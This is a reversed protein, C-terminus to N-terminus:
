EGLPRPRITTVRWGTPGHRSIVGHFKGSAIAVLFIAGARAAPQVITTLGDSSVGSVVSSNASCSIREPMGAPTTFTSVVVSGPATTVGSSASPRIRLSEKVPDVSTPRISSACHPGCTTRLEISSPPLAGNTTKSSASRSAATSAATRALSRLMPSAQVAALRIKTWFPIRAANAERRASRNPWSRIPCPSSGALWIPGSISCAATSM